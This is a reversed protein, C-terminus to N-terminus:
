KRTGKMGIELSTWIDHASKCNMEKDFEIDLLGSMIIHNAIANSTYLANGVIYFPHAVLIQYENEVVDWVDMGLSIIYIEM